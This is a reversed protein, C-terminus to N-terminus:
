ILINKSNHKIETLLPTLCGFNLEFNDTATQTFIFTLAFLESDILNESTQFM